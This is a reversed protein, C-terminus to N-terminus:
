MAITKYLSDGETACLECKIENVHSKIRNKTINVQSRARAVPAVQLIVCVM